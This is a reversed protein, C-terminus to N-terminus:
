TCYLLLGMDTNFHHLWWWVSWATWWFQVDWPPPHTVKWIIYPPEVTDMLYTHLTPPPLPASVLLMRRGNKCRGLNSRSIVVVLSHSDIVRVWKRGWPYRVKSCPPQPPSPPPCAGRKFTSHFFLNLCPPLFFTAVTDKKGRKEEGGWM